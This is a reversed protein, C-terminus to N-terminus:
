EKYEPLLPTVPQTREARKDLLRQAIERVFALKSEDGALARLLVADAAVLIAQPAGLNAEALACYDGRLLENGAERALDVAAGPIGYTLRAVLRAVRQGLDLEPYLYEAVRSATAILDSTRTAVGRVPGAAGGFAGGFQTVREEIVNMPLGSIYLLCAAAKKARATSTHEDVSAFRLHNLLPAVVGQRSLESPWLAPEKHVSRRNLPFLVDDLEATNQVVTILAPDTVHAASTARFARVLRIISRVETATEGALRGLLTLEYRGHENRTILENHELDSLANVLDARSWQWGEHQRAAQFAGFSSELFEIIEESAVGEHASRSASALVRVILSRADTGSDLFRSTLDEPQGLVYRNWLYHETKPDLALLYSTGKEVFGLRGARGVLNKYEAISYPQGGPHDLGVIIVSSAPTNVGMALTTTASIVRLGSEPRRFEEEILRREIPQLDASHFAVGRQLDDILDNNAMSPDTVPMRAVAQAASPLGLAGALYNAVSRAESKTERFVILQQGAELLKRVLPIVWDQSSGKGYQRQVVGKEVREENTEPDLYRFSGDARLIGEALPVPRETRCLLRGGLWDELGGTSGIVASLSVVQPEIGHRRRMRILTLIFELNAGRSKDALMQTEDVVIIGAQELVHPFTLALAAFKEYTLLAIDYRSRILPSIDDTEGTAEITRIGFPGYVAEFHRRKDAVVAKLPFLFIARNRDQVHRLAALEGIMTKGSSTPASVVLHEGNLLGYHNIAEVQLANLSPIAQRWADILEQPFGHAILSALDHTVLSAARDPFAAAFHEGPAFVPWLLEGDIKGRMAPNQAHGLQQAAAKVRVTVYDLLRYLSLQDGTAVDTPGLLAEILFYTLLGHGFKGNEWAAETASSATFIIRGNGALRSLRAETSRMDRPKLPVQLVKSGIGGSFCCDLFFIVRKAPIRAFWEELLDLPIATHPLDSIDTDHTVLEHTESGHGSFAIVVTDDADVEALLAFEEEIRSSTAQDDVLLRTTSGFTDSFLADLAFADRRACSLENIDPSQYRDIGIFLGRFGM